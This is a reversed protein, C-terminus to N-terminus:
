ENFKVIKEAHEKQIRQCESLQVANLNDVDVGDITIEFGPFYPGSTSGNNVAASIKQLTPIEAQTVSFGGRIEDDGCMVIEARLLKDPYASALSRAHAAAIDADSPSPIEWRSKEPHFHFLEADFEFATDGILEGKGDCYIAICHQSLLRSALYLQARFGLAYPDQVFGQVFLTQEAKGQWEGAVVASTTISVGCATLAGLAHHLDLRTNAVTELGINITILTKM